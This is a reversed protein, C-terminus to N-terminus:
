DKGRHEVEKWYKEFAGPDHFDPSNDGDSDIPPTEIKDDGAEVADLIGDNDSDTDLYDPNGDGDTDLEEAGGEDSDSITDGDSDGELLDNWQAGESAVCAVGVMAGMVLFVAARGLIPLRM